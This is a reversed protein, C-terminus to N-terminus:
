VPFKEQDWSWSFSQVADFQKRSAVICVPNVPRTASKREQWTEMRLQHSAARRLLFFTSSAAERCRSFGYPRSNDPDTSASPGCSTQAYIRAPAFQLHSGAHRM